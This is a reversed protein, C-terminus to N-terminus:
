ARSRFRSRCSRARSTPPLESSSALTLHARSGAREDALRKARPSLRPVRTREGSQRAAKKSPASSIVPTPRHTTAPAVQVPEAGILPTSTRKAREGKARAAGAALASKKEAM